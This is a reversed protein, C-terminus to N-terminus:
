DMFDIRAEDIAISPVDWAGPRSSDEPTGNRPPGPEAGSLDGM